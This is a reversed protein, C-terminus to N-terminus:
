NQKFLLKFDYLKYKNIRIQRFKELKKSNHEKTKFKCM